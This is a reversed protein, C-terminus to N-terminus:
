IRLDDKIIRTLAKANRKKSDCEKCTSTLNDWTRSSKYYDELPKQVNCKTCLKHKINNIVTHEKIPKM